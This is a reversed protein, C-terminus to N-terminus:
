CKFLQLRVVFRSPGRFCLFDVLLTTHVLRFTDYWFCDVFTLTEFADIENSVELLSNLEIHWDGM